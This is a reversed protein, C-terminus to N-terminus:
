YHPPPVNVDDQSQVTENLRRVMTKLVDIEGAQVRILDSLEDLLAQQHMFRIELEDIRHERKEEAM